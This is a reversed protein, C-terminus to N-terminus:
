RCCSANDTPNQTLRQALILHDKSVAIEGTYGLAFRGGHQRLFRADPDTRSRKKLGSKRLTQLRRPMEALKEKAAELATVEWGGPESDDQNCAAQWRRVQRRLLGCQQPGFPHPEHVSPDHASAAKTSPLGSQM